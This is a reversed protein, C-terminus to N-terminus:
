FSSSPPLKMTPKETPQKQALVLGDRGESGEGPLLSLSEGQSGGLLASLLCVFCVFGELTIGCDDFVLPTQFGSNHGRTPAFRELYPLMEGGVHLFQCSGQQLKHLIEWVSWGVLLHWLAKRGKSPSSNCSPIRFLNPTPFHIEMSGPHLHLLIGFLSHHTSSSHGRQWRLTDGRVNGCPYNASFHANWLTGEWLGMHTIQLFIPM